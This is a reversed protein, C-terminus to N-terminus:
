LVLIKYRRGLMGHQCEASTSEIATFYKKKQGMTARLNIDDEVNKNTICIM